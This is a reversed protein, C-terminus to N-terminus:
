NTECGIMFFELELACGEAFIRRMLAQKEPTCGQALRDILAVVYSTANDM